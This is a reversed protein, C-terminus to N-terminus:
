VADYSVACVDCLEQTLVLSPALQELLEQDLGYISSGRRNASTIHRHIELSRRTDHGLTSRTIVPLRATDPPFDCEHTVAVLKEGLGLAFVIETASPLLSCIRLGPRM